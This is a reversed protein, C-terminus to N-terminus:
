PAAVPAEPPDLLPPRFGDLTIASVLVIAAVMFISVWMFFTMLFREGNFFPRLKATQRGAWPWPRTRPATQPEVVRPEAAPAPEPHPM